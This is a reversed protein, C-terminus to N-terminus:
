YETALRLHETSKTGQIQDLNRINEITAFLFLDSRSAEKSQSYPKFLLISVKRPSHQPKLINHM